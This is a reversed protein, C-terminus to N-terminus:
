VLVERCNALGERRHNLGPGLDLVVYDAIQALFHTIAEFNSVAWAYKADM